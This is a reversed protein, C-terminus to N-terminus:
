LPMFRHDGRFAAPRRLRSGDRALHPAARHKEGGRPGGHPAGYADYPQRCPHETALFIDSWHFVFVFRYERVFDDSEEGRSESSSPRDDVGRQSPGSMGAAKQLRGRRGLEDSEIPVRLRQLRGPGDEARVPSAKPENSGVKLVERGYQFSEPNLRHASDKEVKSHGRGLEVARSAPEGVSPGPGEVHSHIGPL